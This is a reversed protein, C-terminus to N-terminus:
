DVPSGIFLRPALNQVLEQDSRGLSQIRDGPEILHQFIWAHTRQNGFQDVESDPKLVKTRLGVDVDPRAKESEVPGDPRQAIFVANGIRETQSDFNQRLVVGILKSYRQRVFEKMKIMETKQKVVRGSFIKLARVNRQHDFAHRDRRGLQQVRRKIASYMQM